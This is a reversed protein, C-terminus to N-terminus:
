SIMKVSTKMFMVLVMVEIVMNMISSMDIATPVIELPTFTTPTIDCNVICTGAADGRNNVTVIIRVEEGVSVLQRTIILNRVEFDAASTGIPILMVDVTNDGVLLTVDVYKMNYGDMTVALTYAGPDADSFSFIGSANTTTSHDDLTVGVGNLLGLTSYDRIVGVLNAKAPSAPTTLVIDKTNDCAAVTVSVPSKDEYGLDTANVITLTYTGPTLGTFGYKGDTGTTSLLGGFTVQIDSIPNGSTDRVYGSLNATQAGAAPQTFMTMMVMAMMVGMIPGMMDDGNGNM